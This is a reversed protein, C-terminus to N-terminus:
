APLLRYVASPITSGITHIAMCRLFAFVHSKMTFIKYLHLFLSCFYTFSKNGTKLLVESIHQTDGLIFAIAAYILNGILFALLITRIVTKNSTDAKKPNRNKEKM